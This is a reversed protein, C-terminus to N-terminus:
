RIGAVASPANDPWGTGSWGSWSGMWYGAYDMFGWYSSYTVYPGTLYPDPVAICLYDCNIVLIWGKGEIAAMESTSLAEASIGDLTAFPESTSRAETSKLAASQQMSTKGGAMATATLAITLVMGAALAKLTRTTKMAHRRQTTPEVIAQYRHTNQKIKM